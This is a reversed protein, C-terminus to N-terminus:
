YGLIERLEELNSHTYTKNYCSSNITPLETRISISSITCYIGRSEEQFLDYTINLARDCSSVEIYKVEGVTSEVRLYYSADPVDNLAAAGIAAILAILGGDKKDSTKIIKEYNIQAVQITALKGNYQETLYHYPNVEQSIVSIQFGIIALIISIIKKM